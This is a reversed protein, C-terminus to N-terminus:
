LQKTFKMGFGIGRNLTLIGCLNWNRERMGLEIIEQFKSKNANYYQRGAMYSSVVNTLYSIGMLVWMTPAWSPDVSDPHTTMPVIIYAAALLYFMYASNKAISSGRAGSGPLIASYLGSRLPIDSGRTIGKLKIIKTEGEEITVQRKFEKFGKKRITLSYTDPPIDRITSRNAVITAQFTTGLTMKAGDIGASNVELLGPIKYGLIRMVMEDKAINIVAAAFVEGTETSIIRANVRLSTGLDTITGTVIADAGLIQGLEKITETDFVDTLTLKLETLVKTLFRREMIEFRGTKFLRTILEETLFKGFDTTQGYLNSFDIVAIKHKEESIMSREIQQTLSNMAEDLLKAEQTAFSPQSNVVLNAFLLSLIISIRMKYFKNNMEMIWKDIEKGGSNKRREGLKKRQKEM